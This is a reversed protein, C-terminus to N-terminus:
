PTGPGRTEIGRLGRAFRGTLLSGDQDRVSSTRYFLAPRSRYPARNSRLQTTARFGLIVPGSVATLGPPSPSRRDVSHQPGDQGDAGEPEHGTTAAIYNGASQTLFEVVELHGKRERWIPRKDQRFM